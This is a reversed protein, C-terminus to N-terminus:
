YHHHHLHHRVTQTLFKRKHIAICRKLKGVVPSFALAQLQIKQLIKFSKQGEEVEKEEDYDYDFAAVFSDAQEYLLSCLVLSLQLVGYRSLVLSFLTEFKQVQTVFLQPRREESMHRQNATVCYRLTVDWFMTM